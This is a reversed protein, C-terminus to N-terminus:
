QPTYTALGVIEIGRDAEQAIQQDTFYGDNWSNPGDKEILSWPFILREWQVGAQAARDPNYISQVAGLFRESTDVAVSPATGDKAGVTGTCLAASLMSIVVLLRACAVIAGRPGRGVPDIM